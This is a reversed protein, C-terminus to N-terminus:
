RDGRQKRVADALERFARQLEGAAVEPPDRHEVDSFAPGNSGSVIQQELIRFESPDERSLRKHQIAGDAAIEDCLAIPIKSVGKAVEAPKRHVYAYLKQTAPLKLPEPPPKGEEPPEKVLAGELDIYGAAIINLRAKNGEGDATGVCLYHLRLPEEELFDKDDYQAYTRVVIKATLEKDVYYPAITQANLGDGSVKATLLAGPSAEPPVELELTGKGDAVKIKTDGSDLGETDTKIADARM